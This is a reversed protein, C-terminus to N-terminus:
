VSWSWMILWPFEFFGYFEGVSEGFRSVEAGVDTGEGM